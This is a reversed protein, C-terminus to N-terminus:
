ETPNSTCEERKTHTSVTMGMGFLKTIGSELLEKSVTQPPGQKSSGVARTSLIMCRRQVILATKVTRAADVLPTELGLFSCTVSSCGYIYSLVSAVRTDHDVSSYVVSISCCNIVTFGVTSGQGTPIGHAYEYGNM